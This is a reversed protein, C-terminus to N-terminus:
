ASSGGSQPSVNQEWTSVRLPMQEDTPLWSWGFDGLIRCFPTDFVAAHTTTAKNEPV